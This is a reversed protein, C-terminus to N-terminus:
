KGQRRPALFTSYILFRKFSGSSHTHSQHFFPQHAIMCSSLFTLVQSVHFRAFHSINSQTIYCETLCVPTSIYSFLLLSVPFYIFLSLSNHNSAYFDNAIFLVFTSAQITMTSTPLRAFLDANGLWSLHLVSLVLNDFSSARSSSSKNQQDPCISVRRHPIACFHLDPTFM